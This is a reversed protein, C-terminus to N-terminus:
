FCSLTKRLWCSNGLATPLGMTLSYSVILDSVATTAVLYPLRLIENRVVTVVIHDAPTFHIERSGLYYITETVAGDSKSRGSRQELKDAKPRHHFGHGIQDLRSRYRSFDRPLAASYLLAGSGTSGYVALDTAVISEDFDHEGPV